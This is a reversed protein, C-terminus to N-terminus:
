HMMPLPWMHVGGCVCVHPCFRSVFMRSFVNGEWLETPPRYFVKTYFLKTSDFSLYLASLYVLSLCKCWFCRPSFLCYVNTFHNKAKLITGQLWTSNAACQSTTCLLYAGHQANRGSRTIVSGAVVLPFEVDSRLLKASSIMLLNAITFVLIDFVNIQFLKRGWRFYTCIRQPSLSAPLFRM